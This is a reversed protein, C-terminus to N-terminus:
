PEPVVDRQSCQPLSSPSEEPNRGLRRNSASIRLFTADFRNESAHESDPHITASPYTANYPFPFFPFVSLSPTTHLVVFFFLLSQTLTTALRSTTILTFHSSILFASLFPFLGTRTVQKCSPECAQAHSVMEHMWNVSSLIFYLYIYIYSLLVSYHNQTISHFTVSSVSV